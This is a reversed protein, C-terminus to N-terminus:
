NSKSHRGDNCRRSFLLGVVTVATVCILGYLSFVIRGEKLEVFKAGSSGSMQGYSQKLLNGSRKEGTDLSKKVLKNATYFDHSTTLFELVGSLTTYKTALNEVVNKEGRREHSRRAEVAEDSLGVNNCSLYFLEYNATSSDNGERTTSFVWDFIAKSRHIHFENTVVLLRRWGNIDTFTSRTFFANSITDYSTTEVFVYQEPVPYEPHQMLYAASATSEWLPLGNHPTIFQPLHATGASLCIVSPIISAAGKREQLAHMLKAVSDCRRQVYTPPETPSSPVGGGLVLIADFELSTYEDINTFLEDEEIITGTPIVM